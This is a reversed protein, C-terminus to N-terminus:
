CRNSGAQHWLHHRLSCHVHFGNFFFDSLLHELHDALVVKLTSDIRSDLFFEVSNLILLILLCNLLQDSLQRLGHLILLTNNLQPGVSWCVNTNEGMQLQSEIKKVIFNGGFSCSLVDMAFWVVLVDKVCIRVRWDWESSSVDRAVSWRADRCTWWGRYWWSWRSYWWCICWWFWSRYWLNWSCSWWHRCLRPFCLWCPHLSIFSPFFIFCIFCGVIICLCAILLGPHFPLSFSLCMRCSCGFAWRLVPVIPSLIDWRFIPRWKFFAFSVVWTVAKSITFGIWICSDESDFFLSFDREFNNEEENPEDSCTEAHKVDVMPHSLGIHLRNALFLRQLYRDFELEHWQTSASKLPFGSYLEFNSKHNDKYSQSGPRNPQHSCARRRWHPFWIDPTILVM